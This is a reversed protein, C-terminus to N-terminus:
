CMGSLCDLLELNLDGKYEFNYSKLSHLALSPRAPM